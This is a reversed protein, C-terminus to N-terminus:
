ILNKLKKEQLAELIIILQAEANIASIIIYCKSPTTYIPPQSVVVKCTIM